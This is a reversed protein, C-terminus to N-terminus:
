DDEDMMIDNDTMMRMLVLMADDGTMMTMLKLLVDDDTMMVIAVPVDILRIMVSPFIDVNNKEAHDVGDYDIDTVKMVLMCNMVCVTTKILDPVAVLVQNKSRQKAM